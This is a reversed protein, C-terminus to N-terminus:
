FDKVPSFLKSFSSFFRVRPEVSIKATWDGGNTGGQRKVFSTQIRVLKDQIDQVGFNRGDHELWGYSDLNDSQECNHRLFIM